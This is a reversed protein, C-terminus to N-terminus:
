EIRQSRAQVVGARQQGFQVSLKAGLVLVAHEDRADTAHEIGITALQRERRCSMFRRQANACAARGLRERDITTRYEREELVGAKRHIM